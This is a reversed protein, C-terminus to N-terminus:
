SFKSFVKRKIVFNLYKINSKHFGGDEIFVKDDNIFGTFILNKTIHIARYFKKVNNRDVVIVDELIEVKKNKNKNNRLQDM